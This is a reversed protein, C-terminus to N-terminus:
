PLKPYNKLTQNKTHRLATKHEKALHWSVAIDNDLDDACMYRKNYELVIFVFSCLSTM